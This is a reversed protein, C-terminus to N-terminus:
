KRENDKRTIMKRFAVHRQAAQQAEILTPHTRQYCRILEPKSLWVPHKTTM